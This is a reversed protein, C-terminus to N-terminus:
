HEHVCLCLCLLVQPLFATSSHSETVDFVPPIQKILESFSLSHCLSISICGTRQYTPGLSWSLSGTCHQQMEQNVEESCSAIKIIATIVMCTWGQSMPTWLGYWQLNEHCFSTVQLEPWKLRQEQRLWTWEHWRANVYPATRRCYRFGPNATAARLKRSQWYGCLTNFWYWCLTPIGTSRRPM